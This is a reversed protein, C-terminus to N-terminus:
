ADANQCVMEVLKSGCYCCFGMRNQSPTGDNLVFVHGCDTEWWGENDMTWGCPGTAKPVPQMDREPCCAILEPNAARAAILDAHTQWARSGCGTCELITTTQERDTM